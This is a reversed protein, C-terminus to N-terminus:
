RWLRPSRHRGAGHRRRRGVYGLFVDKGCELAKGLQVLVTHQRILLKGGLFRFQQGPDLPSPWNVTVNLREGAM